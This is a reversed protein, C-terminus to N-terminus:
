VVGFLVDLVPTYWHEPPKVTSSLVSTEIDGGVVTGEEDDSLGQVRATQDGQIVYGYKQRVADELGADSVLSYNQSDLRENREAVISYEVQLRENERISQYYQAVPTYLFAVALVACVAITIVKARGSSLRFNSFWGIPNVKASSPGAESTRQMRTARRRRSGMEGKYLAARPGDDERLKDKPLFQREFLRDAKEKLRDRKRKDAAAKRASAERVEAASAGKRGGKKASIGYRAQSAHAGAGNRSASGKRSAGSASVPRSSRSASAGRSSTSKGQAKSRSPAQSARTGTAKTRKASSAAKRSSASGGLWAPVEGVSASTDEFRAHESFDIIPAADRSRGATRSRSNSATNQRRTANSGSSRSAGGRANARTRDLTVINSQRAM